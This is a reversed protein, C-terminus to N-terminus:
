ATVRTALQKRYLSARLLHHKLAFHQRIPGFCSLFRQTRAPDRFGRMRREHERTPRHSNEAWNNVRAAAKVFVHKVGSLTPIRSKAIAYSFLKDTVVKRPVSHGALLREFVRQAAAIDRRKQLLVDLETGHEDVARWLWCTQGRLSVLYPWSAPARGQAQDAFHPGFKDGWARISEHSVVVGRECLLAEIDRM